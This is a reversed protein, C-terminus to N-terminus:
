LTQLQDHFTEIYGCCINFDNLEESVRMRKREGRSEWRIHSAENHQQFIPLFGRVVAANCREEFFTNVKACPAYCDSAFCTGYPTKPKFKAEIFHELSKRAECACCWNHIINNLM